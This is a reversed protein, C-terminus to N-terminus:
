RARAGGWGGSARPAGGRVARASAVACGVHRGRPRHRLGPRSGPAPHLVHPRCRRSDMARGAISGPACARPPTCGVRCFVAAPGDRTGCRLGPRLGPAPHLARSWRARSDMARVRVSGRACARPRTCRERGVRALAWRASCGAVGSMAWAGGWGGSARPAGCREARGSAVARGERRRRRRCRLGPRLGPAPHLLPARWRVSGMMARVAAAYM